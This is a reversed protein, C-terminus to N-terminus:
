YSRRAKEKNDDGLVLNDNIYDHNIKWGLGDGKPMHIFGEEDMPDMIEHLYDPPKEYDVHPHLLGREYFEGPLRMSGLAHLNGEKGGHVEMAMNFSEALHAVKMLPTLGGLDGVGGRLIDVVDNKIWEARTSIKGTMTEPGIVPIDLQDSLWKYSSMSSEDMPEEFWYVGFKELEKAFNQSQELDLACNADVMLVVDDGVAARAAEVRLLDGKIGENPDGIKIKVAGANMENVNFLVEEQLEKLGKGEAYYGGAIYTRIRDQAGGLLQHVSKGLSKGKIDWCAINIAALVQTNVGGPGLIKIHKEGLDEAIKRTETPDRGILLERFYEVFPPFVNLPREAATGGNWGFGEIGEDTKVTVKHLRGPGYFHGGNWIGPREWEFVESTVDIIKM